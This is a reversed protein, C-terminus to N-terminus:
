MESSAQLPGLTARTNPDLQQTIELFKWDTHANEM